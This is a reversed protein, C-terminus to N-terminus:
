KASPGFSQCGAAPAPTPVTTVVIPQGKTFAKNYSESDAYVINNSFGEQTKVIFTLTSVIILILLSATVVRSVTGM